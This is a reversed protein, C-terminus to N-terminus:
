IFKNRYITLWKAGDLQHEPAMGFEVVLNLKIKPWALVVSQATVELGSSPVGVGPVDCEADRMM